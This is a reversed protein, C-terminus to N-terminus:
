TRTAPRKHLHPAARYHEQNESHHIWELQDILTVHLDRNLHNAEYLYQGPARPNQAHFSSIRTGAPRHWLWALLRAWTHHGKLDGKPVSAKLYVRGDQGPSTDLSLSTEECTILTAFYGEQYWLALGFFVCGISICAEHTQWPKGPLKKHTQKVLQCDSQEHGYQLVTGRHARAVWSHKVLTAGRARGHPFRSVPGDACILRDEGGQQVPHKPM